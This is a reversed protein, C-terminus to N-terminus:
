KWMNVIGVGDFYHSIIDGAKRGDKAMKYAGWQSMGVGHGYGRGKFVIQDGEIDVRDLLTSKMETSGIAIRFDPASVQTGDFSLSIARGSEGKGSITVTSFNNVPKGITKLAELVKGKPARYEWDREDAPIEPSNDPSKVAKIYPPEAKKYNLGEKPTATMGAANSHFWGQVFKGDCGM